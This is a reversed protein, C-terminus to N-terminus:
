ADNLCSVSQMFANAQNISNQSFSLETPALERYCSDLSVCGDKVKMSTQMDPTFCRSQPDKCVNIDTVKTFMLNVAGVMLSKTDKFDEHAMGVSHGIEHAIVAADHNNAMNVLSFKTDSCSNTVSTAGRVVKGNTTVPHHTLVMVLDHANVADKIIPNQNM